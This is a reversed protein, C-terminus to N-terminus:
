FIDWWYLKNILRDVVISDHMLTKMMMTLNDQLSLIWFLNYWSLIMKNFFTCKRQLYYKKKKVFIRILSNTHLNSLLEEERILTTLEKRKIWSDIIALDRFRECFAFFIVLRCVAKSANILRSNELNSCTFAFVITRWLSFTAVFLRITSNFKSCLNL